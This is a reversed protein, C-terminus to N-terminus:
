PTYSLQYLNPVVTARFDNLAGANSTQGVKRPQAVENTPQFRIGLGLHVSNAVRGQFPKAVERLFHTEICVCVKVQQKLHTM